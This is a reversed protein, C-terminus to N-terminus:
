VDGYSPLNLSLWAPNAPPRWPARCVTVHQSGRATPAATSPATHCMWGDRSSDTQQQPPQRPSASESVCGAPRPGHAIPLSSHDIALPWETDIPFAMCHSVPLSPLAHHRPARPATGTTCHMSLCPVFIGGGSNTRPGFLRFEFISSLVPNRKRTEPRSHCAQLALHFHAPWVPLTEGISDFTSVPCSNPQPCRIICGCASLVGRAAQRTRENHPQRRTCAPGPGPGQAASASAGSCGSCPRSASGLSAPGSAWQTVWHWPQRVGDTVTSIRPIEM